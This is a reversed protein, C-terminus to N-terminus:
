RSYTYTSSNGDTSLSGSNSSVVRGGDFVRLQWNATGSGGFYNVYYSYTGSPGGSIWTINEDTCSGTCDIDWEGGSTSQSSSSFGITEGAPDTVYLDLDVLNNDWTLNFRPNGDGGAAGCDPGLLSTCSADDCKGCASVLQNINAQSIQFSNGNVDKSVAFEYCKIDHCIESLNECIDPPLQMIFSLTGSTNGQAGAIPVMWIDGNPDGFAIGAHTVSGTPDNFPIQVNVTQNDVVQMAGGSSTSSTTITSSQTINSQDAIFSGAPLQINEQMFDNPDQTNAPGDDGGGGGCSSFITISAVTLITLLLKLTKM